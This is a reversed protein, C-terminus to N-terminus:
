EEQHVCMNQAKKYGIPPRKVNGSISRQPHVGLPKPASNKQPGKREVPSWGANNQKSIVAVPFSILALTEVHNM